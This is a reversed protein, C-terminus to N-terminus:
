LIFPTAHDNRHPGAHHSPFTLEFMTGPGAGIKLQGGLQRALGLAVPLGLSTLHGLAFDPPLGVGNDAVSLRIEQGDAIPQLAIRLEGSRGDPFAHKLANTILENALLGCPIAQDIALQV